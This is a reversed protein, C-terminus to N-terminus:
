VSVRPSCTSGSGPSDEPMPMAISGFAVLPRGPVVPLIALPWHHPETNTARSMWCCLDFGESRQDIPHVAVRYAGNPIEYWSDSETDPNTMQELGSGDPHMRYIDAQGARESTFVIWKGDPTLSPSYESERHPLARENTGDADAVFLGIEPVRFRNFLVRHKVATQASSLLVGLLLLCVTRRM